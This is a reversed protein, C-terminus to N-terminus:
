KFEVTPQLGLMSSGETNLEVEVKKTNSISKLDEPIAKTIADSNSIWKTLEFGHQSLVPQIHNFVETAEEPTEVLKIFGDMYFYNKLAKATFPCKEENDLRLRKLAFNACTPSSKAGFVHRQHEYIQVLENTSPRCLFRVCSRNQKTFRVQLFMAEIDATLSIPGERFRFM